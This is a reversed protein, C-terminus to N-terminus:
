GKWAEGPYWMKGHLDNVLKTDFVRKRYKPRVSLESCGLWRWCGTSLREAHGSEISLRTLQPGPNESESGMMRMWMLDFDINYCGQTVDARKPISSRLPSTSATAMKNKMRHQIM